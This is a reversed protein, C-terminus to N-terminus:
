QQEVASGCYGSTDPQVDGGCGDRYGFTFIEENGIPFHNIIYGAFTRYFGNM